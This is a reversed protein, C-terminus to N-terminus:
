VQYQLRKLLRCKQNRENLLTSLENVLSDGDENGSIVAQKLLVLTSEMDTELETLGANSVPDSNRVAESLKELKIKLATDVVRPILSELNTRFEQMFRTNVLHQIDVQEIKDRAWDAKIIGLAGTSIVLTSLVVAIWVPVTIFSSVLMLTVCVILQAFLSGYAIKLVPIGFFIRRLTDANRFAIWDIVAQALIWIATFAYVTWFVNNKQFPLVFVLVNFVVFIIALILLRRTRHMM